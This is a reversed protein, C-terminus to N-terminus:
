QTWETRRCECRRNFTNSYRCSDNSFVRVYTMTQHRLSKLRFSYTLVKSSSSRNSSASAFISSSSIATRHRRENWEVFCFTTGAATSVRACGDAVWETLWETNSSTSAARQNLMKKKTEFWCYIRREDDGMYIMTRHNVGCLVCVCEAVLETFRSM